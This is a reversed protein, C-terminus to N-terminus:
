DCTVCVFVCVRVCFVCEKNDCSVKETAVLDALSCFGGSYINLMNRNQHKKAVFSDANPQMQIRAVRRKFAGLIAVHKGTAECFIHQTTNVATRHTM